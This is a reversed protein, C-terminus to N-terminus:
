VLRKRDLPECLGTSPKYTGDGNYTAQFSYSGGALPGQSASTAVGSANLTSDPTLVTGGTTCDGSTFFTFTVTGTPTGASGTVTAEDTVSTGANVSTVTVGGQKIATVTNSPNKVTTVQQAVTANQVAQNCGTTTVNCEDHWTFQVQDGLSHDAHLAYDAPTVTHFPIFPTTLTAGPPLTCVTGDCSAGGTLTLTAGTLDELNGSTDEPSAITEILAPLPHLQVPNRAPASAGTNQFGFQCMLKTGVPVTTPNCGKSTSVGSAASAGGAGVLFLLGVAVLVALSVGFSRLTHAM